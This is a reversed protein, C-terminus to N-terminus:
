LNTLDEGAARLRAIHFREAVDMAATTTCVQLVEVRPALGQAILDRLWRTKRTDPALEYTSMHRRLRRHASRETQGVYRIRDTRPDVLAYVIVRTGAAM